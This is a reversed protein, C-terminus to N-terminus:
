LAKALLMGVIVSCLAVLATTSTLAALASSGKLPGRGGAAPGQDGAAPGQGNVPGRFSPEASCPAIAAEPAESTEPADKGPLSEVVTQYRLLTAQYERRGAEALEAAQEDVAEDLDASAADERLTIASAIYSKAMDMNGNDFFIKALREAELAAAECSQKRSLHGEDGKQSTPEVVTILQKEYIIKEAKRFEVAEAFKESNYCIQGLRRLCLGIIKLDGRQTNQYSRLCEMYLAAASKAQGKDELFKAREFASDCDFEM